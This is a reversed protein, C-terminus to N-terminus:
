RDKKQQFALAAFVATLPVALILGISGALTRVIEEALLESNLILWLPQKTPNLVLYIFIPLGAGAYALALTNVLAAIHESGIRLGGNFLERFTFKPNALALEHMAVSLGITIDNLVGLSGIIIGGLLLGQFNINQTPGYLLSAADESGLGSLFTFTVSIYALAGSLILAFTTAFLAIHTKKSFGHAVYMTIVMIFFSGVISTLLPDEGSLITPVIFKIIIIFSIILGVLAGLGKLRSVLLVVALFLILFPLLNNLRYIDIIQYTITAGTITKLLVVTQGEHVKQGLRITTQDGYNITLTKGKESGDLIQVSVKQFPHKEGMEDRTTDELIKLVKAKSPEEKPKVTNMHAAQQLAQVTPTPIDSPDANQAFAPVTIASFLLLLTIATVLRSLYKM